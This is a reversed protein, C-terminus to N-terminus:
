LATRHGRLIPSVAKDATIYPWARVTNYDTYEVADEMSMGDNTVFAKVIRGYSYVLAWGAKTRDAGIVSIDLYRPDLRLTDMGLKNNRKDVACIFKQRDELSASAAVKLRKTIM